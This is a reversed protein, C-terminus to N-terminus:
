RQYRRASLAIVVNTADPELPPSWGGSRASNGRPRTREDATADGAIMPEAPTGTGTTSDPEIIVAAHGRRRLDAVIQCGVGGYGACSITIPSGRSRANWAGSM